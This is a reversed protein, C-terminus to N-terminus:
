AASGVAPATQLADVVEDQLCEVSLDGDQLMEPAGAVNMRLPQEVLQQPKRALQRGKRGGLAARVIIWGVVM